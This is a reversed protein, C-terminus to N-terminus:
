TSCRRISASGASGSPGARQGVDGEGDPEVFAPRRVLSVFATELVVQGAEADPELVVAAVVQLLAERRGAGDAGEALLHPRGDVGELLALGLGVALVFADDESLVALGM